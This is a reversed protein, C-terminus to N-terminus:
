VITKQSTGPVASIGLAQYLTKQHYIPRLGLETKLSRFVAELDTLLAYTQWLTAEDWDDLNTSLEYHSFRGAVPETVPTQHEICVGVSL